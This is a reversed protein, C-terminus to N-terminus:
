KEPWFLVCTALRLLTLPPGCRLFSRSHRRWAVTGLDDVRVGSGTAAVSSATITTSYMYIYTDGGFHVVLGCGSLVVCSLSVRVLCVVVAVCVCLVRM